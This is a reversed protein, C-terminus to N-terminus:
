RYRLNNGINIQALGIARMADSYAKSTLGDIPPVTMRNKFPITAGKTPETTSMASTSSRGQVYANYNSNM